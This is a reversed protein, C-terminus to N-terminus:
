WLRWEPRVALVRRDTPYEQTRATFKRPVPTINLLATSTILKGATMAVDNM